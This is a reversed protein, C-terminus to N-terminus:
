KATNIPGGAIEDDIGHQVVHFPPMVHPGIVQQFLCGTAKLRHSGREQLEDVRMNQRSGEIEQYKLNQETIKFM